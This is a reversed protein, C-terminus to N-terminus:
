LIVQIVHEYYFFDKQSFYDRFLKALVKLIHTTQKTENKFINRITKNLEISIEKQKIYDKAEENEFKRFIRKLSAEASNFSHHRHDRRNQIVLKPM